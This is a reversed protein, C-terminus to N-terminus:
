LVTVGEARAARVLAADLSALEADKRLALDLYLADYVTLGHRRALALVNANSPSTDLAIRLGEVADIAQDAFGEPLRGRRESVILINRFEAWLLWPAAFIEHRSALDVLDFGAEDPMLWGAVASADVVLM